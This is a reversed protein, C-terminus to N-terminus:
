CYPAWVTVIEVVKQDVIRVHTTLHNFDILETEEIQALYDKLEAPSVVKIVPEEDPEGDENWHFSTVQIEDGLQFEAQGLMTSSIIDNTGFCAMHDPDGSDDLFRLEAGEGTEFYGGNILLVANDDQWELSEITMVENDILITDGTQLAKLAEVPYLDDGYIDLIITQGTVSDSSLSVDVTFDESQDFTEMDLSHVPYLTKDEEAFAAFSMFAMVLVMLMMMMKKMDNVGTKRIQPPDDGGCMIDYSDFNQFTIM